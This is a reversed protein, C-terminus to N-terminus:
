QKVFKYSGVADEIYAKLLYIGKSLKSVDVQKNTSNLNMREVQQGVINYIEIKDINKSASLNIYDKAPNPHVNFKFQALDKLSATADLTISVNDIRLPRNGTAKYFLLRINTVGSPITLSFTANTNWVDPTTNLVLGDNTDNFTLNTGLNANDKVRVTMNYNGTGSVWRYDFNVIYTSGEVVSIVQFISGEGNNVNGATSSTLDDSVIVQSNFGTWPTTGTNIAGTQTDFTGDSILNQGFSVSIILLAILFTIKKM